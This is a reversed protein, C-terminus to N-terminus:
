AAEFLRPSAVAIRVNGEHPALVVQEVETFDAGPNRVLYRRTEAQISGDFDVISAGSETGLTARSSALFQTWKPGYIRDQERSSIDCHLGHEQCRALCGEGNEGKERRLRGLWLPVDRGPYSVDLPRGALPPEPM